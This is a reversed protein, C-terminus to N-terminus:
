FWVYNIYPRMNLESGQLSFNQTCMHATIHLTHTILHPFQLPQLHHLVVLSLNEYLTMFLICMLLKVISNFGTQVTLQTCWWNMLQLRHVTDSWAAHTAQWIEITTLKTALISICQLKQIYHRFIVLSEFKVVGEGFVNILCVIWCRLITKQVVVIQWNKDIVDNTSTNDCSFCTRHICWGYEM